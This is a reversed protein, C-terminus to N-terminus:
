DTLGMKELLRRWRPDGHLDRLWVSVKLWALGTDRQEYARELWEFAADVNGRLAYVEAIRSADSDTSHEILGRLAADSEALHGRAHQVMALGMLRRAVYPEQQVERLADELRGQHLRVLGLTWHTLDGRPSFEVAKEAAAVAGAVDGGRLLAWALWRFIHANLPDLITARRLLAICEEWRDLSGALLAAGRIVHVNGPALELARRISADAAKWDWDYWMHVRALADHGEALEPELQL